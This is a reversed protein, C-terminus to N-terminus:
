GRVQHTRRGRAPHCVHENAASRDRRTLNLAAAAVQSRDAYHHRGSGRHGGRCGPMFGGPLAPRDGAGGSASRGPHWRSGRCCCGWHTSPWPWACSRFTRGVRGEDLDTGAKAPIDTAIPAVIVPYHEQFESWSRLLAQRTIFAEEAAVADPDGAAAFFASMFRRIPEPLSPPMVQQWIARIGPTALMIVLANAAAAIGPPEVEDVVYGAQELANAAKRVGDQVQSVTAQGAPDLVIAARVPVAPEPGRLPAPVTWPDRWTPGAIVDFAARLDAVRRALPGNVQALQMGITAIDTTEVTSAHPIRGLTPKLASVGCCQAPHRLSGLGDNGLGLPSMGTAIAAAEGASSAGPTRSRNWPNVITGWLESECHWRVGGSPLNTRGIPIGGVARLREVVPADRSPYADALAKLPGPRM